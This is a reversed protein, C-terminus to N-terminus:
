SKSSASLVAGLWCRYGGNENVTVRVLARLEPPTPPSHVWAESISMPWGLTSWGQFALCVDWLCGTEKATAGLRWGAVEPSAVSPPPLPSGGGMVSFSPPYHPFQETTWHNLPSGLLCVHPHHWRRM